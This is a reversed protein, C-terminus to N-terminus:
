TAISNSPVRAWQRHIRALKECVPLMLLYVPQAPCSTAFAFLRAAAASSFCLAPCFLSYYAWVIIRMRAKRLFFPRTYTHGYLPPLAPDRCRLPKLSFGVFKQGENGASYTVANEPRVSAGYTLHPKISLCSRSCYGESRM